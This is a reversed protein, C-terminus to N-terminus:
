ISWQINAKEIRLSHIKSKHLENIRKYGEINSVVESYTREQSLWEENLNKIKGNIENLVQEMTKGYKKYYNASNERKLRYKESELEFIERDIKLKNTVHTASSNIKSKLSEIIGLNMKIDNEYDEIDEEIKKIRANKSAIDTSKIVLFNILFILM